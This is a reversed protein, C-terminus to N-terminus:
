YVQHTAPLLFGEVKLFINNIKLSFTTKNTQGGADKNKLQNKRPTSFTVSNIALLDTKKTQKKVAM